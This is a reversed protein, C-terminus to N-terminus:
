KSRQRSRLEQYLARTRAMGQLCVAGSAQLSLSLSLSAVEQARMLPAVEQARMGAELREEMVQLRHLWLEEEEEEEEEEAEAEAVVV